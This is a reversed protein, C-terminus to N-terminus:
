PNVVGSCQTNDLQGLNGTLAGIRGNAHGGGNCQLGWEGNGTGSNPTSRLDTGTPNGLRITSNHVAEIGSRVNGAITNSAVEAASGRASIVNGLFTGM